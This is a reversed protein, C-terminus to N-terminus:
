KKCFANFAVAGFSGPTIPEWPIYFETGFTGAKYDRVVRKKCHVLLSFPGLTEIYKEPKKFPALLGEPKRERQEEAKLFMRLSGDPMSDANTAFVSSGNVTKGIFTWEENAIAKASILLLCVCLYKKM